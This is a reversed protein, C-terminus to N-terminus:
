KKATLETLKDLIQSFTVDSKLFYAHVGHKTLADSFSHENLNTVVIVPVDRVGEDDHGRLQALFDLGSIKPLMLDLLLVDPRESILKAWGTEGDAATVVDYGAEDLKAAYIESFLKDDEIVLIKKKPTASM